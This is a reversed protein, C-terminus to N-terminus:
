IKSIIEEKKKKKKGGLCVRGACAIFGLCVPVVCYHEWLDLKWPLPTMGGNM